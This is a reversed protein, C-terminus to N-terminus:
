RGVGTLVLIRTEPDNAIGLLCDYTENLMRTTMGNFNDPRNMTLTTVGDHSELTITDYSTIASAGSFSTACTPANPQRSQSWIVTPQAFARRLYWICAGNVSMSWPLASSIGASM